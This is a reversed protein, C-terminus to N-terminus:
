SMIHNWELKMISSGLLMDLLMIFKNWITIDYCPFVSYVKMQKFYVMRCFFRLIEEVLQSSSPFM